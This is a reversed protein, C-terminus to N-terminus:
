VKWRYGCDQCVAISKTKSRTGGRLLPVIWWLGATIIIMFVHLLSM